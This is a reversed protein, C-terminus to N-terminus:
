SKTNKEHLDLMLAALFCPVQKRGDVWYEILNRIEEEWKSHKGGSVKMTGQEGDFLISNEEEEGRDNVHSKYVSPIVKFRGNSQFAVQWGLTSEVAETFEGFKQSWITKLRKEKKLQKDLTAQLEAMELRVNALTSQPVVKTSPARGQLQEQLATNEERLTRLTELKVAEARATPNDRVELVRTRGAERLASLQSVTASLEGSLQTNTTALTDLEDQLTRIKRQLEGLREDAGDQHSRKRKPSSTVMSTRDSASEFVSLSDHLQKIEVRYEDVLEELETIRKNGDAKRGDADDAVKGFEGEEAEFAKIQARLYDVEKVALNRQRELRSRIKTEDTLGAGGDYIKARQLESTLRAKDAELSNITDQKVALEPKISGLKDLLSLRDIREAMFAKAMEEPTQFALGDHQSGQIDLYSSWRMKEDQLITKQLEAEALEKRLEEMRRVKAELSRKEEEVVQVSKHADRLRKLEVAQQRGTTELKRMHAVQESLERKVLEVSEADRASAQLGLVEAELEGVRRERDGLKLQVSGTASRAAAVREELERVSSLVAAHRGDLERYRQEFRRAEEAAATKSEEVEESLAVNGVQLERIKRELQGVLSDRDATEQRSREAIEEFRKRAAVADQEAASAKKFEAEARQAAKHLDAEHRIETLQRDHRLSDLEYQLKNLQARLQENSIDARMTAAHM